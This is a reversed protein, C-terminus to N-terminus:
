GKKEADHREEASGATAWHLCIGGLAEGLEDSPLVSEMYPVFELKQGESKGKMSCRSLLLVNEAWMRAKGASKGQSFVFSKLLKKQVGFMQGTCARQERLAFEETLWARLVNLAGSDDVLSSCFGGSLNESKVFVIQVIRDSVRIGNVCLLVSVCKM